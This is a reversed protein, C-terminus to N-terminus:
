RLCRMCVDLRSSDHMSMMLGFLVVISSSEIHEVLETSLKENRTSVWGDCVMARVEHLSGVDVTEGEFNINMQTSM